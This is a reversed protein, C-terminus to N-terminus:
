YPPVINFNEIVAHPNNTAGEIRVVARTAAEATVQYNTCLKYYQGGTTVISRPAPKLAQGYSYVVFRPVSDVKLLGLIQQPIREYAADNLGSIQQYPLKSNPELAKPDGLNLFPSIGAWYGNPYTGVYHANTSVTLEAVSLIDGLHTFAKLASNTARADNIANVIRAVPTPFNPDYVGAPDIVRPAFQLLGNKLDAATSTNTLTIVGSLVASWAALNTQNISLKGRAANDNFATTFIDFLARDNVPLTFAADNTFNYLALVNTDIQGLNQIMMPNGAWNTWRTIDVGSAKLYVTQWPTGRHVRGLWGINPFKNTPFDWDDSRGSPRL